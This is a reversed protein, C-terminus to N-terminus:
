IRVAQGKDGIQLSLRLIIGDGYDVRWVNHDGYCNGVKIVEGFSGDPHEIIDGERIEKGKYDPWPAKDKPKLREYSM